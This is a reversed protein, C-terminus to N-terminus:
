QYKYRNNQKPNNFAGWYMPDYGGTIKDNWLQDSGVIILDYKKLYNRDGIGSIKRSLKLIDGILM